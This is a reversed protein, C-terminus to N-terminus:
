WDEDTAVGWKKMTVSLKYKRNWWDRCRRCHSGEGIIARKVVAGKGIIANSMAMKSLQEKVFKLRQYSQLTQSYRRGFLWRRCSFRRHSCTGLSTQHLFSTAHISKGTVIAIRPLIQISINWIPKGFLSLQVLTKGIVMSNLCLCREGSELYTPIVNKGFDSMDIDGKWCCGVYQPMQKWDTICGWQLRLQNQNLQNEKLNPLGIIPMQIWSELRSAEKLPM